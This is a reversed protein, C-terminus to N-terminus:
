EEGWKRKYGKLRKVEHTELLCGKKSRRLYFMMEEFNFDDWVLGVLECVRLAHCYMLRIMLEGREM